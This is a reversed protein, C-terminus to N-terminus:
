GIQRKGEQYFATTQHKKTTTFFLTKRLKKPRTENLHHEVNRHTDIMSAENDINEEDKSKDPDSSTEEYEFM